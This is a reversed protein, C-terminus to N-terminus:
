VFVLQFLLITMVAWTQGIRRRWMRKMPEGPDLRHQCGVHVCKRREPRWAQSGIVRTASWPAVFRSGVPIRLGRDAFPSHRLKTACKAPPWPTTPEFGALGVWRGPSVRNWDISCGNRPQNSPEPNGIRRRLPQRRSGRLFRQLYCDSTSRPARGVRRSIPGRHVSGRPPYPVRGGFIPNIYPSVGRDGPAAPPDLNPKAATPSHSPGHHSIARGQRGM